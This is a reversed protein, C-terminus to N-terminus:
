TSSFVDDHGRLQLTQLTELNCTSCSQTLPLLIIIICSAKKKVRDTKQLRPGTSPSCPFEPVRLNSKWVSANLRSVPNQDTFTM